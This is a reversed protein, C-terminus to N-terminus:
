RPLLLHSLPFLSPSVRRPRSPSFPLPAQRGQSGGSFPFTRLNVPTRAYWLSSSTTVARRTRRSARQHVCIFAFVPTDIRPSAVHLRPEFPAPNRNSSSSVATVAAGIRAPKSIIACTYCPSKSVKTYTRSAEPTVASSALTNPTASIYCLTANKTVNQLLKAASHLM